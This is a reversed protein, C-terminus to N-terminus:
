KGALFLMTYIVSILEMVVTKMGESSMWWVESEFAQTEVSIKGVEIKKGMVKRFVITTRFTHAGESVIDINNVNQVKQRFWDRFAIASQYTRDKAVVHGPVSVVLSEAVGMSKITAAALEAYTKYEKLYSGHELPGGTSVIMRYDGANFVAVAEKICYDPLWGEVILIGKGTPEDKSLFPYVTLLPISIGILVMM